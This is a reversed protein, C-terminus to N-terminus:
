GGRGCLKRRFAVFAAECAARAGVIDTPQDVAARIAAHYDLKSLRFREWAEEATAAPRPAPVVAGRAKLPDLPPRPHPFDRSM